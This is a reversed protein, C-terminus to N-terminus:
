IFENIEDAVCFAAYLPVSKINNTFGFNKTSIRISYSPKYKEIYINLSKSRNNESSKVEVPIIGDKNQILFGIKATANSTWYYLPVKKFIFETAIYNEVLAGKFMFDTDMIIDTFKLESARTLLGVDSMYLKFISEDTYLKLPTQPIKVDYCINLLNSSLLWNIPDSFKRKKGDAELLNFVFKKNEKALQKPINKYVNEIKVTEMSNNTYKTMDAYYMSNINELISKDQLVINCNNEAFNKVSEPMGGVCLYNRYLNIADNHFADDMKECSKYCRKIEELLNNKNVAMLFEEFNMPHMYELDIKGVPFSSNFRNVKVGLLSGACIIKINQEYEQFYKLSTIFRESVQVEDFFMITNKIDIKRELIIELKKLIVSVEMTEEFINFIKEQNELNFYLYNQSHAKAFNEIVYTKGIQRAGIVMLPKQSFEFWKGLKEEFLRKM